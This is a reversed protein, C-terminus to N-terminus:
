ACVYKDDLTTNVEWSLKVGLAGEGSPEEYSCITSLQADLEKLREDIARSKTQPSQNRIALAISLRMTNVIANKHDELFDIVEQTPFSQDGSVVLTDDRKAGMADRAKNVKQEKGGKKRVDEWELFKVHDLLDNALTLRHEGSEFAYQVSIGATKLQACLTDYKKSLVNTPSGHSALHELIMAAETSPLSTSAVCYEEANKQVYEEVEQQMIELAQQRAVNLARVDEVDELSLLRVSPSNKKVQGSSTSIVQLAFGGDALAMRKIHFARSLPDKPKKVHAFADDINKLAAEYAIVLADREAVAAKIHSEQVVLDDRLSVKVAIEPYRKDTLIITGNEADFFHVEMNNHSVSQEM